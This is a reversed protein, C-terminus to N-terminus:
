CNGMDKNQYIKIEGDVSYLYFKERCFETEVEVVYEKGEEMLQILLSLFIDNVLNDSEM